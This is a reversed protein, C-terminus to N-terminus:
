QFYEVVWEAAILRPSIFIMLLHNGFDHRNELIFSGLLLYPETDDEM